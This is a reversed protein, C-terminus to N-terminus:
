FLTSLAGIGRTFAMDLGGIIIAVAVVVIIVVVTNKRVQNWPLWVVKKSESKLGRFFKGVKERKVICFVAVAVVIVGLICLSVITATNDKEEEEKEGTTGTTDTSGTTNGTTPTEKDDEASPDEAKEDEPEAVEDEPEAEEGGAEPEAVDGATAASPETGAPETEAFVSLSCLSFMLAVTLIVAILSVLRKNAKM